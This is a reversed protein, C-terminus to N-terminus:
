LKQIASLCMLGRLHIKNQLDLHKTLQGTISQLFLLSFVYTARLHKYTRGVDNIQRAKMEAGNIIITDDLYQCLKTRSWTCVIQFM